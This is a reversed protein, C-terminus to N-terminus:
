DLVAETGETRLLEPLLTIGLLRRPDTMPAALRSAAARSRGPRDQQRHHANDHGGEDAEILWDAGVRQEIERAHM